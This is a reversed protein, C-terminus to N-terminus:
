EAEQTVAEQRPIVITARFVKYPYGVTRSRGERYEDAESFMLFIRGDLAKEVSPATGDKRPAAVFYVLNEWTENM